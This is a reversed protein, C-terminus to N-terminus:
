CENICLPKPRAPRARLALAARWCGGPGTSVGAGAPPSVRPPRGAARRARAAAPRGPVPKEGATHAGPFPAAKTRRPSAANGGTHTSKQARSCQRYPRCDYVVTIVIMRRAFPM